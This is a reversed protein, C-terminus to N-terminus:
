IVTFISFTATAAYAGGLVFGEVFYDGEPPAPGFVQELPVVEEFAIRGAITMEEEAQTFFRGASWRWLEKGERDRIVIEYRQGSPFRLTVPAADGAALRLTVRLHSGTRLVEVHFRGTGHPALVMPGIRASELAFARPGAISQEVRRTMGINEEYHEELVGADACGFSRYEMVLARGRREKQLQTQQDCVRFPAEAWGGDVREFSTLLRDEGTEEDLYMLAGPAERVWLPKEVYGRLWHYIRGDGLSLPLGVTVTRTEGTSHERYIWHNGTELPLMAPGQAALAPITLLLAPILSKM